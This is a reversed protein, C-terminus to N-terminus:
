TVKFKINYTIPTISGNTNSLSFIFYDNSWIPSEILMNRYLHMNNVTGFIYESFGSPNLRRLSIDFCNVAAATCDVCILVEIKHGRPYINVTKNAGTVLTGAYETVFSDIPTVLEIQDPFEGILATIPTSNKYNTSSYKLLFRTFARNIKLGDHLEIQQSLENDFKLLVNSTIYKNHLRFQIYRGGFRFINWASDSIATEPINLCTINKHRNVVELSDTRTLFDGM